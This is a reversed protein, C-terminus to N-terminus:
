YPWYNHIHSIIFIVPLTKVLNELFFYARLDFCSPFIFILSRSTFRHFSIEQFITYWCIQNFLQFSQRGVDFILVIHQLFIFFCCVKFFLGLLQRCSIEGLVVSDAKKEAAHPIKEWISWISPWLALLDWCIYFM